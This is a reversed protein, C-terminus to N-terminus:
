EMRRNYALEPEREHRTIYGHAKIQKIGEYVALLLKWEADNADYLVNTHILDRVKLQVKFKGKQEKAM